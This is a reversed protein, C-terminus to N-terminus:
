RPPDTRTSVLSWSKLWQSKNITVRLQRVHLIPTPTEPIMGIKELKTDIMKIEYHIEHLHPFNTEYGPGYVNFVDFIHDFFSDARERNFDVIVEARTIRKCLGSAVRRRPGSPGPDDASRPFPYHRISYFAEKQLVERFM